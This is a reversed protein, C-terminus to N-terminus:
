AQTESGHDGDKYVHVAEPEHPLQRQQAEQEEQTQLRLEHEKEWADRTLRVWFYVAFGAFVVWEIAYFLNLWSIKERPVPPYSDIAQLDLTQLIEDPTHDVLFGASTWGEVPEQWLNVLQGPVMTNLAQQDGTADPAEPAETPTFRGTIERPESFSDEQAATHAAAVAGDKTASWGIAVAYNGPEGDATQDAPENTVLHGVVWYGNENQNMRNGVVMFDELDFTGTVSVIRGAHTDSVAQGEGDIESVPVAVETDFGLDNDLRVAHSMQWQALSAFVAAVALSFLLVLIWKPRVMVQLHTPKGVYKPRAPAPTTIKPEGTM